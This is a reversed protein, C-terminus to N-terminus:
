DIQFECYSRGHRVANGPLSYPKCAEPWSMWYCWKGRSDSDYKSGAPILTHYRINDMYEKPYHFAATITAYGIITPAKNKGTQIIAVRQGYLRKLMNRSRTEVPKRGTVIAEAYKVPGDDNVFIGYM